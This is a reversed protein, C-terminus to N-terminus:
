HYTGLPSAAIVIQYHKTQVSRLDFLRGVVSSALVTGIVGVICDCDSADTICLSYFLLFQDFLNM